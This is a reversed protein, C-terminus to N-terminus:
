VVHLTPRAAPAQAAQAACLELALHRTAEISLGAQSLVSEVLARTPADLHDTYIACFAGMADALSAYTTPVALPDPLPAVPQSRGPLRVVKPDTAADRSPDSGAAFLPTSCVLDAGQARAQELPPAPPQGRFEGYGLPKFRSAVLREGTEPIEVMCRDSGDLARRAIVRRSQHKPVEYELALGTDPDSGWRFVGCGDLSRHVELAVTELADPPCPRVGGAQNTYKVWAARRSIRPECRSPRGNLAELWTALEGRYESLRMTWKQRATRRLFFQREFGAWLKQWGSEIGKQRDHDYPLGDEVHVGLRDLLDKTPAYKVLPGQDTWLDHPKGKWPQAPDDTGVWSAVLYEMADLGSEGLAALSAMHRLGTHMDWQGYLILRERDEGLPKNKYGSAPDPRAWLELLRDDGGDLQRVVRFNQSTSADFQVAQMPFDAVLRRGRRTDDKAGAARILRDFEGPSVLAAEPPLHGDKVAASLCQDTPILGVPCKAKLRMLTTVWKMREPHKSKRPRKPGSFGLSDFARYLAARSVGLRAALRDATATRTGHPSEQWEALALRAASDTLAM